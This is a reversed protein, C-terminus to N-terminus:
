LFSAFIRSHFCAAEAVPAQRLTSAPHGKHKSVKAQEAAQAV